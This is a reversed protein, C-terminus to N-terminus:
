RDLRGRLSERAVQWPILEVAGSDIEEIRRGIERKWAEEVVKDVRPDLSAAERKM